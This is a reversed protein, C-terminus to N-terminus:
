ANQQVTNTTQDRSILVTTQLENHVHISRFNRTDVVLGSILWQVNIFHDANWVAALM